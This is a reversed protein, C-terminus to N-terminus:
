VNAYWYQEIIWVNKTSSITPPSAQVNGMTTDNIEEMGSAELAENRTVRKAPIEEYGEPSEIYRPYIKTLIGAEGGNGSITYEALAKM